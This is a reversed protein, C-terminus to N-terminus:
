PGREFLACLAVVALVAFVLIGPLGDFLWLWFFLDDDRDSM